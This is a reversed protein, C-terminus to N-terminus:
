KYLPPLRLTLETATLGPTGYKATHDGRARSIPSTLVAIAGGLYMMLILFRGLVGGRHTRSRATKGALLTHRGASSHEAPGRRLKAHRAVYETVSQRQNM